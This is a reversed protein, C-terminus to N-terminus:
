YFDISEKPIKKFTTCIIEFQVPLQPLPSLHLFELKTESSTAEYHSLFHEECWLPWKVGAELIM